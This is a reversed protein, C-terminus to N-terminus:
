AEHKFWIDGNSGGSPNSTSFYVEASTYSSSQHKLIMDGGIELRDAAPGTLVASGVTVGAFTPSNGTGLGLNTAAASASSAGTGGNAVALDTGSWNSNNISINSNLWSIDAQLATGSTEVGNGLTFGIAASASDDWGLIADAGPDALDQLDGVIGGNADAWSGLRSPTILKTNDSEDQAEAISAIDNSDYKSNVATLIADFESDVDTGKILKAPDGPSLADKASFDVQRSYDSM